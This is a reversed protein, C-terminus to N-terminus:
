KQYFGKVYLQSHLSVLVSNEGGDQTATNKLKTLLYNHAELMLDMGFKFNRYSKLVCLRGIKEESPSLHVIRITGIAELSPVLRLLVHTSKGPTDDIVLHVTLSQWENLPLFV